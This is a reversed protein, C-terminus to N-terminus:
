ANDGIGDDPRSQPNLSGKESAAASLREVRAVQRRLTITQEVTETTAVRHIRLEEKLVLRREVV